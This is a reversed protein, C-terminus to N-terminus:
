QAWSLFNIGPFEKHQLIRATQPIETKKQFRCNKKSELTEQIEPINIFKAVHCWWNWEFGSKILVLTKPKTTNPSFLKWCYILSSGLELVFKWFQDCGRDSRNKKQRGMASAWPLEDLDLAKLPAEPENYPTSQFSSSTPFPFHILFQASEDLNPSDFKDRFSKFRELPLSQYPWLNPAMAPSNAVTHSDREQKLALALTLPRMVMHVFFSLLSSIPTTVDGHQEKFATGRVSMADQHTDWFAVGPVIGMSSMRSSAQSPFNIPVKTQVHKSFITLNLVFFSWNKLYIKKWWLLESVPMGTFTVLHLSSLPRSSQRPDM